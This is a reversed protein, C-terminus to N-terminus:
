PCNGWGGLLTALDTGDVIGNGDFDAACGPCVGWSGLL